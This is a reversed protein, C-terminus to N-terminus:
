SGIGLRGALAPSLPIITVLMLFLALLALGARNDDPESLENLSPRELDRQLFLIVVAWYLPIPNAPNFISVLGLVILTAVTTRRATKRGYIAQVIRGGDLQGAPMLNLANIVLGLWGLVTLPHVDIITKQLEEGLVVRALAGVLISGQFFQSPVQFLSGPHSLVLGIFLLFLSVIGGLAPGAFAIDFLASRDPLLSEFRTVSGFSGIQWTPLFFPWSLKLNYNKAAWRHGIEHAILILWLGMALPLAEGYRQWQSFLDFGLLAAIAELSTVLTAIFLVLALNKQALTMTQPDNSRPLIIVVPRGETGEVLFLRYKESLVATLKESLKPYAEDPDARLNGQFIAGEQYSITQTAFFTDISFIGKILALDAEPIPLIDPNNAESNDTSNTTEAESPTATNDSEFAKLRQAARERLMTDQGEARLRKGLYIYIGASIVLLMVVGILNLYIGAAFLTFFILWPAMLVVSQFWALLGLKGFPKSRQYGWTLVGGAMLLILTIATTESLNFM